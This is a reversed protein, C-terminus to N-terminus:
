GTAIQIKELQDIRLTKVDSMNGNRGSRYNGFRENRKRDHDESRSQESIESAFLM